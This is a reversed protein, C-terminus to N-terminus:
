FFLLLVVVVVVVVMTVTTVESSHRISFTKDKTYSILTGYCDSTTCGKVMFELTVYDTTLFQFNKVLASSKEFCIGEGPGQTSHSTFSSKCLVQFSFFVQLSIYVSITTILFIIIASDFSAVLMNCNLHHEM